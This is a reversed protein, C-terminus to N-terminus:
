EPRRYRWTPGVFKGCRACENDWFTRPQVNLMLGPGAPIAYGKLEGVKTSRWDHIGLICRVSPM